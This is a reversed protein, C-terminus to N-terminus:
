GTSIFPAISLRMGQGAFKWVIGSRGETLEVNRRRDGNLRGRADEEGSSTEDGFYDTGTVSGLEEVRSGSLIMATRDDPPTGPRSRIGRRAKLGYASVSRRLSPISPLRSQVMSPLISMLMSSEKPTPGYGTPDVSLPRPESSSFPMRQQVM